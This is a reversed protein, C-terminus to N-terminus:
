PRSGLAAPVLQRRLLAEVKRCRLGNGGFSCPSSGVFLLALCGRSVQAFREDRGCDIWDLGIEPM